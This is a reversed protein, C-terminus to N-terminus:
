NAGVLEFPQGVEHQQESSRIGCLDDYRGTAEHRSRAPINVLPCWARKVPFRTATEAGWRRDAEEQNRQDLPKEVEAKHRELDAKREDQYERDRQWVSDPTPRDMQALRAELREIVKAQAALQAQMAELPGTVTAANTVPPADPPADAANANAAAAKAKGPRSLTTAESM